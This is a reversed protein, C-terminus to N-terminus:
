VTVDVFWFQIFRDSYEVLLILYKTRFMEITSPNKFVSIYELAASAWNINVYLMFGDM